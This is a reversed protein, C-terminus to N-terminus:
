YRENTLAEHLLDGDASAMSIAKQQQESAENLKGALAMKEAEGQLTQTLPEFRGPCLVIVFVRQHVSLLTKVLPLNTGKSGVYM